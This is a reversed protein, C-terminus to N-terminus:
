NKFKGILNQEIIQKGIGDAIEQYGNKTPHGDFMYFYGTKNKLDTFHRTLEIYPVKNNIAVSHYISDIKNNAQFYPNLIDGPNRIVKHGTLINMPLNVFVFGCNYQICINKMELIDKNMEKVAFQTASNSINNFIILRDPFNIYYNLSAVSLDGSRFLKQVTDELTYFRIKQLYTFKEIMSSASAKEKDKIEITKKKLRIIRQIINGFSFKLFEKGANKIKASLLHIGPNKHFEPPVKFNMEYLQVLDDIQLVGALVLDPKLLPVAKEMNKKYVTTYQGGQGCNIVEVQNYGKSHLFEELKRPWSDEINVGWGFTWSDGFCLIRYKNGKKIEVERDRLGLSNINAMFDFEVSSYHASVDPEFIIGQQGPNAPSKGNMKNGPLCNIIILVSVLIGMVTFSFLINKIRKGPINRIFLYIMVLGTVFTLIFFYLILHIHILPTKKYVLFFCLPNWFLLSIVTFFIYIRNKSSV